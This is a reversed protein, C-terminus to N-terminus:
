VFFYYFKFFDKTIQFKGGIYALPISGLFYPTLFKIDLHGARIYNFCNGSAVIINCTLAIIPILLYEVDYITLLALYSTGGAFGVSAYVVAVFFFIISLM